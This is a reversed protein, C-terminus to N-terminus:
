RYDFTWEEGLNNSSKLVKGNPSASKTSTTQFVSVAHTRVACM